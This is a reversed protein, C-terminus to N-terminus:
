ADLVRVEDGLRLEGPQLVSANVGLDGGTEQVVTRMIGPDKALDKFGHTIMVCRPCTIEVKIVVDGIQLTKGAWDAEAHGPQGDPTEILFNPRFRRVDIQADANRAQVLDLASQTMMLLPFADFYTGLPSEFEMIEAPFVSLDPLPEDPLRAFVARLADEGALASPDRRYHDLQDKPVIPWLSVEAGIAASIRAAADADDTHITAGDPLTIVARASRKEVTPEEVFQADCHMLLPFRKAGSIGGGSDDRATWVRDGLVGTADVYARDVQEGGMSKVPYRFISKITGVKM